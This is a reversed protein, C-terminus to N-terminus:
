VDGEKESIQEPLGSLGEVVRRM